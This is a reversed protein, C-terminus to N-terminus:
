NGRIRDVVKMRHQVCPSPGEGMAGCKRCWYLTDEEYPSRCRVLKWDHCGKQDRECDSVILPKM